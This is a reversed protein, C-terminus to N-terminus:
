LPPLAWTLTSIGCCAGLSRGQRCSQQSKGVICARIVCASRAFLRVDTLEDMSVGDIDEKVLLGNKYLCVVVPNLFAAERKTDGDVESLAAVWYDINTQDM